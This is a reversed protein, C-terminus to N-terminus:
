NKYLKFIMVVNPMTTDADSREEENDTYPNDMSIDHPNIQQNDEVMGELMADELKAIDNSKIYVSELHVGIGTTKSSVDGYKYTIPKAGARFKYAELCPKYAPPEYEM